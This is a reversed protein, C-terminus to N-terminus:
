PRDTRLPSGIGSSRSSASGSALEGDRLGGGTLDVRVLLGVALDPQDRGAMGERDEALVVDRGLLLQGVLRDVVFGVGVAVLADVDLPVVPGALRRVTTAKM